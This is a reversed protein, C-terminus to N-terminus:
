RRSEQRAPRPEEIMDHITQGSPIFPYVNEEQEVIFDLIAPGDYAMAKEIAGRVQAKDTVKLGLCGFADALRAFDPNRTYGTAVYQRQYFAEQWQRVMGLFGNNIIAFKVPIRNEVMTAVESMTMQFGGDGAISWVVKDPRGVQAGLAGPVEYGMAGSGGSSVLSRPEKFGYHQAAWMQHQGVGTVIIAEGNTAASIEKIVFQPILKDTERVLHSPHERKLEEIRGLWEGHLTPDVHKNLMRLVRKLDGVIPVDVKVNKGIESPDIDIHVKKSNTAFASPKGTIRDDFRMGLALVLDAEEIAWSAYAMGHMGPMGLSLVHGEPFCSIGLLTTIVPIQAKEALERLEDYSNSLIIGHGALIVPRKAENILKAAKKVQSPHGDMTPKYGPLDLSDPYEFDAKETFVDKPIDILVPGPRGTSAIHFAEKVVRAIDAANMVLYNHKTIPLTIGTIDTEQFADSGIAARAVQGTVIVMPVSDMQATAIGTVLNTAGPGSTAWAVGPRGTVRAYGDAAHAAGQEHRMLIHRLQPYQPLTQYLPLIAGGPLGFIVDVGERLMSECLIQAGTLKMSSEKNVM